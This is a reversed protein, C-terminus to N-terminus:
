KLLDDFYGTVMKDVAIREKTFTHQYVDKMVSNTKWGGREMAYKDPVGLALMVSANMHRLDHFTMKPLNFKKLRNVFRKYIAQGSLTVIHGTGTTAAETANILEMLYQPLPLKRAREYAKLSSKEVPLGDADIISNRVTLYGDKVCDITLGRIESMSLSLCMALLCPIEIATGKIAPLIDEPMPLEKISKQKQPIAPQFSLGHPNLASSLLGRINALSKPSTVKGRYTVRKAEENFARQVITETLKDIPMDMLGQLNNRRIKKYGSITSPSLVGDKSEIYDDIAQGVTVQALERKLKLQLELADREAERKTPRTISKYKGNIYVQVRWSGSPLQTAKAM